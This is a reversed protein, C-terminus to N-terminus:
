LKTTKEFGSAVAHQIVWDTWWATAGSSLLPEGAEIAGVFNKIAPYHLNPHTPLEERGAPSVIQPENLPTLDIEGEVGFIRFEDRTVRSHWRVDVIAHAQKRYKILVTASDEVTTQHVTNSLLARVELPEGFLYNLLDIRHCGIDYLPGGGAKAPDLLWARKGDDAVFWMHCCAYASVPQGITGDRILELARNVKPYTRRYYAVGLQRGSTRAADLMAQSEILNMGMPKECLVHHGARLSQITQTAHIFVPSAVYVAEFAGDALADDLSTFVKVGYPAAKAPDRTVIGYLRSRSEELIAPIVRKTTIDGVGIVLWRLM